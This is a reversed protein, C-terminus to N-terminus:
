LLRTIDLETMNHVLLDPNLAALDTHPMLGTAVAVSQFGNAQAARVDNAHDGVLSIRATATIRKTRRARQAAMRAVRARTRGDEAFAGITFFHHLDALELKKWAIASLNGTVLGLVAGASGLRALTERVGPCVRDRLDPACNKAYASQCEHMIKHLASNIFRQSAGASRLMGAILDRDLMGSTDIGDLTTELGTVTRIGAALADRHHAGAKSLLTGDIDFLVLSKAPETM